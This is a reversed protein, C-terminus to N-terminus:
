QVERWAQLVGALFQEAFGREDMLVSSRMRDRQERRL